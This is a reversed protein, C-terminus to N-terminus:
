ILAARENRASVFHSIELVEANVFIRTQIVPHFKGHEIHAPQAPSEGHFSTLCRSREMFAKEPEALILINNDNSAAYVHTLKAVQRYIFPELAIPLETFIRMPHRNTGTLDPNYPLRDDIRGRRQDVVIHGLM